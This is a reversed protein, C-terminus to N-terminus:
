LGIVFSYFLFSVLSVVGCLVTGWAVDIVAFKLPYNKIFTLSTFDYTFYLVFGFLMGYLLVELGSEGRFTAFFLCGISIVAWTILGYFLNIKISGNNVEVLSGFQQRIFDHIIRGLWLYDMVILTLLGVFFTAILLIIEM